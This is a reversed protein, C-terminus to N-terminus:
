ALTVPLDLFAGLRQAAAAVAAMDEESLPRFPKLTVTVGRKGITRKWTGAMRGNILLISTLDNEM